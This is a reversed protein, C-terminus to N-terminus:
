PRSSEPLLEENLTSVSGWSNFNKNNMNQTNEYYPILWAMLDEYKTMDIRRPEIWLPEKPPPIYVPKRLPEVKRKTEREELERLYHEHEKARRTEEELM